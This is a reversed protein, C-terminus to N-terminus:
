ILKICSFSISYNWIAVCRMMNSDHQFPVSWSFWHPLVRHPRRDIDLVVSADRLIKKLTDAQVPWDRDDDRKVEGHKCAMFKTSTSWSHINCVHSAVSFFKKPLVTENGWLNWHVVLYPQHHVSDVQELGVDHPVLSLVAAATHNQPKCYRWLPFLYYYLLQSTRIHSQVNKMCYLSTELRNLLMLLLVRAQVLYVHKVSGPVWSQRFPDPGLHKGLVHSQWSRPMLHQLRNSLALPVCSSNPRCEVNGLM